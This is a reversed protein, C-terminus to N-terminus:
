MLLHKTAANQKEKKDKANSNQVSPPVLGAGIKPKKMLGSEVFLKVSNAQMAQVYKAVAKSNGEGDAPARCLVVNSSDVSGSMPELWHQNVKFTLQLDPTDDTRDPHPMSLDVVSSKLEVTHDNEDSSIPVM